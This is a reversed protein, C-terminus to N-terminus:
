RVPRTRLEKRYVAELAAGHGLVSHPSDTQAKSRLLKFNWPSCLRHLQSAVGSTTWAYGHTNTLVLEANPFRSMARRIFYRLADSWAVTHAKGTKSQVYSIGKPTLHETRRWLFLDTQRVGSLYAVAILDQFPENARNFVDLFAEDTVIKRKPTEKNRKSGRCPNCECYLNRMGFEHVASLVAVERNARIGGRGAKRRVDKFHAVQNPRLTGIRMKGFHHNLRKLINLYDKITAAKLHEMGVAQYIQMLEGISNPKLPDLEYLQRYLANIGEDIRSLPHWKNKIIKYYRGDKETVAPISLGCTLKGM